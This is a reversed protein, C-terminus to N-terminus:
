ETPAVVTFYAVAETTGEPLKVDKNDTYLKYKVRLRYLGPELPMYYLMNKGYFEMTIEYSTRADASPLEGEEASPQNYVPYQTGSGYNGQTKAEVWKGNSYKELQDCCMSPSFYILRQVGFDSLDHLVYSIEKVPYTLKDSQISLVIHSNQLIGDNTYFTGYEPEQKSCSALSTLLIVALLLTFIRKKM